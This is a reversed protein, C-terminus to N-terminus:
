TSVDHYHIRCISSLNAEYCDYVSWSGSKEEVIYGCFKGYKPPQGPFWNIYNGSWGDIWYYSSGSYANQLGIWPKKNEFIKLVVNTEQESRISALNGGFRNCNSQADYWNRPTSVYVFCDGNIWADCKLPETMTYLPRKCIFPLYANNCDYISWEGLTTNTMYACYIKNDKNPDPPLGPFWNRFTLNKGSTWSYYTYHGNNSLGIWPRENSALAHLFNNEQSSSIDTLYGSWDNCSEKARPFNVHTSVMKYCYGNFSTGDCYHYEPVTMTYLPRKCIFPLYANNCDYISWEGQTTNTMYACYIKNDTKPDPPIGPFWKRFNYYKGSTWSYYTYHGINSLGIW